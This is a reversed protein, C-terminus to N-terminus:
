EKANRMEREHGGAWLGGLGARCHAEKKPPELEVDVMDPNGPSVPSPTQALGRGRSAQHKPKRSLALLM